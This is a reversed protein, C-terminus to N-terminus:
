LKSQLSNIRAQAREVYAGDPAIEIYRQFSEVAEAYKKTMHLLAAKNYHAQAYDPAMLIAQDYHELAAKYNNEIQDILGLGLYIRPDDPALTKLYNYTKEAKDTERMFMLAAAINVVTDVHPADRLALSSRYAKISQAYLGRNQYINGLNFYVEAHADGGHTLSKDIANIAETFQQVSSHAIAKNMYIDWRQPDQELARDYLSVAQEYEERDLAQNGQLFLEQASAQPAAAAEKVTDDATKKPTSSCASM